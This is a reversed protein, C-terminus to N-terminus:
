EESSFDLDTKEIRSLLPDKGMELLVEEPRGTAGPRAALKMQLASYGQENPIVSLGEILARLDYEKGRRTRPLSVASMIQDVKVQLEAPDNQELLTVQYSASLVNNQMTPASLPIEDIQEIEIGAPVVAPLVSQLLELTCEDQFWIDVWEATSTFGLPLPASQNIRAQPHFGQSYAVPLKARRLSREWLKQVELGSTYKLDSKKAYKIRFRKM